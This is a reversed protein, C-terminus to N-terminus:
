KGTTKQNNALFDKMFPDKFFLNYMSQITGPYVQDQVINPYHDASCECTTKEHVQTIEATAPKTEELAAFNKSPKPLESVARRRLETAKAVSKLVPLSEQRPVADLLPLTLV